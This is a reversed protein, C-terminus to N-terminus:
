YPCHQGLHCISDLALPRGPRPAPAVIPIATESRSVTVHSIPFAVAPDFEPEQTDRNGVLVPQYTRCLKSLPGHWWRGVQIFKEVESVMLAMAIQFHGLDHNRFPFRVLGGIEEATDHKKVAEYHVAKCVATM